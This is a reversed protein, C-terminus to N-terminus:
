EETITRFWRNQSRLDFEYRHNVQIYRMLLRAYKSYESDTFSELTITEIAWQILFIPYICKHYENYVFLHDMIRRINSGFEDAYPCIDLLEQKSKVHTWYAKIVENVEGIELSEVWTPNWIAKFSRVIDSEDYEIDFVKAVQYDYMQYISQFRFDEVKFAIEDPGTQFVPVGRKEQASLGHMNRMARQIQRKNTIPHLHFM